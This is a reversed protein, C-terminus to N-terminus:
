GPSPRRIRATMQAPRAVNRRLIAESGHLDYLAALILLITAEALSESNEQTQGNAVIVGLDTAASVDIGEIGTVPSVVGRLRPASAMLKRSCRFRPTAVLVDTERLCATDSLLADADLYRCVQHGLAGLARAIDDLLAAPGGMRGAIVINM